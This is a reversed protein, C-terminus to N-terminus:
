FHRNQNSPQVTLVSLKAKDANCVLKSISKQKNVLQAKPEPKKNLKFFFGNFKSNM